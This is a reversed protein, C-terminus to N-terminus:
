NKSENVKSMLEKLLIFSNLWPFSSTMTNLISINDSHLFQNETLTLWMNVGLYFDKTKNKIFSLGKPSNKWSAFSNNVEIDKIIGNTVITIHELILDEKEYNLTYEKDVNTNTKM